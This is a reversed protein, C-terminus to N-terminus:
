LGLIKTMRQYVLMFDLQKMCKVDYPCPRYWCGICALEKMQVSEHSPYHNIRAAAPISGFIAISRKGIAGALHMPGSDPGIFLDAGNILAAMERLTTHSANYCNSYTQWNEFTRNFDLVVFQINHKSALAKEVIQIYKEIPWCRKGEMSATHLIVIKKGAQRWPYYIREAWEKEKEEVQYWSCKNELFPIGIARAFIDIRNLVPLGSHEYKICVSSIDVVADFLNPQVFRADVISDIFPSNKVLEFYVNNSTSHMDIAFTLHLRPFDKKLQRLSPTAMLVDGIGGLRRIVCVKAVGNKNLITKYFSGKQSMLAPNIEGRSNNRAHGKRVLTKRSITKIM